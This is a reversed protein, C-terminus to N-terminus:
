IDDWIILGIFSRKVYQAHIRVKEQINASMVNLAQCTYPLSM